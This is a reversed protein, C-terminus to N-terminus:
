PTSFVFLWIMYGAPFCFRIKSGTSIVQHEKMRVTVTPEPKEGSRSVKKWRFFRERAGRIEPIGGTLFKV